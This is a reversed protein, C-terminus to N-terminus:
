SDNSYTQLTIGDLHDLEHQMCIGLWGHGKVTIPEWHEDYGRMSILKHRRVRVTKGERLISGDQSYTPCTKPFSLCGEQVWMKQESAKKITPNILLFDWGGYCSGGVIIRLMEGIQPAAIGIGREQAMVERLEAVIDRCDM